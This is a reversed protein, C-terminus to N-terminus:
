APSEHRHVLRWGGDIASWVSTAWVERADFPRGDYAGAVTARYTVIEVDGVRRVALDAIEYADIRMRAVAALVADRALPGSREVDLALPDVLAEIRERDGSRYADWLERERALASAPDGAVVITV